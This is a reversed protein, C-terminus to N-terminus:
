RLTAIIAGASEATAPELGQATDAPTHIRRLDGWDLRSLTVAAAGARSFPLSDVLIGLPLRRVEVRPALGSCAQSLSRALDRGPADHALLYFTGSGTLTDLNVVETGECRVGSRVFVRSGVLGFEEAGTFLYGIGDERRTEAAVLAALVGTGNDRAGPSAGSRKGRSALGGAAIVLAAGSAVPLGPLATGLIVRAAVLITMAVTALLLIWVAVLRGALSHMQSKTDVHAVIWRRVPAAGRTAVLNVDERREAGPIEVGSGIGWALIGLATLGGLWIFPALWTPLTTLLAPVELLTLWGLGAGLVPLVNLAAPQFTFRQERVEYGRATLFATLVARAESAGATGAERPQSVLAEFAERPTV